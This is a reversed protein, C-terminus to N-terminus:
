TWVHPGFKNNYLSDLRLGLRPSAKGKKNRKLAVLLNVEGEARCLRTMEEFAGLSPLANALEEWSMSLPFIKSDKSNLYELVIVKLKRWIKIDVVVEELSQLDIDSAKNKKLLVKHNKIDDSIGAIEKTSIDGEFCRFTAVTISKASRANGVEGNGDPLNGDVWSKCVARFKSFFEDDIFIALYVNKMTAKGMTIKALGLWEHIGLFM